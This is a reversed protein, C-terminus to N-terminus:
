SIDRPVHMRDVEKRQLVARLLRFIPNEKSQFCCTSIRKGAVLGEKFALAVETQFCGSCKKGQVKQHLSRNSSRKSSLKQFLVNTFVSEKLKQM